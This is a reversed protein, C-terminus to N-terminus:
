GIEAIRTNLRLIDAMARPIRRAAVAFVRRPLSVAKRRETCLSGRLHIWDLRQRNGSSRPARGMKIPESKSYKEIQLARYGGAASALSPQGTRWAQGFDLFQREFPHISIAMPDSAGSLVQDAVPAPEGHDDHLQGTTLSVTGALHLLPEAQHIAQIILAGGGEGAWNAKVPRGYYAPSCYWKVYADAELLKGLRGEALAAKLFLTSDDFRHQGAAGPQIGAAQATATMKRATELNTAM